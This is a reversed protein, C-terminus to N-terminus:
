LLYKNAVFDIFLKNKLLDDYFEDTEITVRRQKTENLVGDSNMTQYWAGSQQILGSEVALDFLGSHKDIGHEYTIHLPFKSGEKVTRSKDATLNFYYGKLEKGDKDKARTIFFVNDSALYPKQGGGTVNKSFMELTTYHSNIMIFPISKMNVVPTIMRFFSALQKPRTMDSKDSGSMADDVEKKSALGGISDVIIIVKDDEEIGDLQNMCEFKLQEINTIPVHAVRDLDVGADEWYTIPSFESDFLIAIGDKYKKQHALVLQVLLGTKYTKSEGCIMTIGETFGGNTYGSFALNLIPTDTPIMESKLFKSDKLLNTNPITSRKITRSMLKNAKTM